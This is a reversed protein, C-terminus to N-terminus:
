GLLINKVTFKWDRLSESLNKEDNVEIKVNLQEEIQSITLGQILFLRRVTQELTEM